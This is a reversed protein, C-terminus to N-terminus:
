PEYGEKGEKDSVDFQFGDSLAINIFCRVNSAIICFM